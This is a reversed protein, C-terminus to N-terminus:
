RGHRNRRRRKVGYCGPMLFAMDFLSGKVFAHLVDDIEGCINSVVQLGTSRLMCELQGSIAGCILVEAGCGVTQRVRQVPDTSKLTVVARSLERDNDMDVLLVTGAADFLPSVRGQWSPIIIKM